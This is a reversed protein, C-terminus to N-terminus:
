ASPSCCCSSCQLCFGGPSAASRNPPASPLVVVEPAANTAAATLARTDEEALAGELMRYGERVAALDADTPHYDARDVRERVALFELLAHATDIPILNRQRVTSILAQGSLTSGGALARLASEVAAWAEIVDAANEEPHRARDLSAISPRAADLAGLASRAQAGIM